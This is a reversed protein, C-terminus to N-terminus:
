DCRDFVGRELWTIRSQVEEESRTYFYVVAFAIVFCLLFYMGVMGTITEWLPRAAKRCHNEM